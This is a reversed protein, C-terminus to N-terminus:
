DMWVVEIKIEDSNRHAGIYLRNSDKDLYYGQQTRLKRMADEPKGGVPRVGIGNVSVKVPPQTFDWIRISEVPLSACYKNNRTETDVSIGLKSFRGDQTMDYSVHIFGFDGLLHQETEGDDVYLSFKGSPTDRSPCIDIIRLEQAVEGVFNMERGLPIIAGERLFVPIRDLPAEALIYQNGGIVKGTYFDFWEGGPLYVARCKTEPQYVPAVMISPGLMFQDFIGHTKEDEPFEFVLPRIIPTGSTAARHMLTYIYPILRYRLKIFDRCISKHPEDLLYPEQRCTDVASHNRFFPVFTGLQIWRTLLEPDTDSQFGGVDAGVFPLGSLGMNLCMPISMLLHEWWSVNDGTWVCALRQIGSYGARTVIFPRTGPLLARFAERASENMFNAYANHVEAHPVEMGPEGHLADLDMTRSETDFCSPENMDNWIGRVGVDFLTKHNKAWWTRVRQKFFDPFVVRGPWVKAEFLEGDPCRVFCDKQLGDKYIKYKPDVKVGPDIITVAKFGMDNLRSILGSPDPFTERDFTFVRYGDMYHIDLYIADCPIDHKRFNRAVEEVDDQPCYSYRSQHYGLAWLPPLKMTGTLAAYGEVVDRIEPGAFFYYDLKKGTTQFMYEGPSNKGMDFVCKGPSDLFVGYAQGGDFGIFFPISVYLSDTSPTHHVTDTNWLTMTTGRKDLYGTREGFGYFQTGAPLIQFCAAGDETWGMGSTATDVCVAIGDPRHFGIRIPSKSIRVRVKRTILNIDTPSETIEVDVAGLDHRVVACSPIEANSVASKRPQPQRRMTVRILDEKLVTIELEEARTRLLVGTATQHLKRAAGISKFSKEM